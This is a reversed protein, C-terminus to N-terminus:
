PGSPEWPFSPPRKSEGPDEDPNGDASKAPDEFRGGLVDSMQRDTLPRGLYRDQAMSVRSHGLQDSIRRTSENADDLFSAVMNRLTHSVLGEM